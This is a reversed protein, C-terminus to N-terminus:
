IYCKGWIIIKEAIVQPLDNSPEPHEAEADAEIGMKSRM